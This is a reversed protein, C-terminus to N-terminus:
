RIRVKRSKANVPDVYANGLYRVKVTVPKKSRMKKPLTVTVRGAANVTKTVSRKGVTIRVKAAPSIKSTVRVLAQTRKTKGITRTRTTFTARASAKRVRVASSMVAADHLGARQLKVEVTVRKGVDARQLVYRSSTAGAIARGERKWQYSVRTAAPQQGSVRATLAEGARATGAITAKGLASFEGLVTSTFEYTDFNGAEDRVVVTITHEGPGLDGLVLTGSGPDAGEADGCAVHRVPGSGTKVYCDAGVIPRGSPTDVSLSILGSSEHLVPDSIQPPVTGGTVTFLYKSRATGEGPLWAEVRFSTGRVGDPLLRHLPMSPLAEDGGASATVLAAYSDCLQDQQGTTNNQIWFCIQGDYPEEEEDAVGGLVDVLLEPVYPNAHFLNTDPYAENDAAADYLLPIRKEDIAPVVEVVLRFANRVVEGSANSQVTVIRETVGIENATLRGWYGIEWQGDRSVVSLQGKGGLLQLTQNSQGNGWVFGLGDGPSGSTALPADGAALRAIATTGETEIPIQLHATQNDTWTLKASAAAGAELPEIAFRKPSEVRLSRTLSVGWSNTVTVTVPQSLDTDPHLAHTLQSRISSHDSTNVTACDLGGGCPLRLAASPATEESERKPWVVEVDFEDEPVSAGLQLELEIEDNGNDHLVVTPADIDPTAVNFIVEGYVPDGAGDVRTMKVEARYAGPRDPVFGKRFGTFEIPASVGPAYVKWEYRFTDDDEFLDPRYRGQGDIPNAGFFVSRDPLFVGGVSPTIKAETSEPPLVRLLASSGDALRVNLAGVRAGTEFTGDAASGATVFGGRRVEPTAEDTWWLRSAIRAAQTASTFRTDVYEFSTMPTWAGGNTRSLLWGDRFKLEQTGRGHPLRLQVVDAEQGNVTWRYDTFVGTSGSVDWLAPDARVTGSTDVFAKTYLLGSIRDRAEAQTHVPPNQQFHEFEALNEEFDVSARAIRELDLDLGTDGDSAAMESLTPGVAQELAFQKSALVIMGIALVAIAVPGTALSISAFSAGSAGTVASATLAHPAIAGVLTTSIAASSGVIAGSVAASVAAAGFSVGSATAIWEMRAKEAFAANKTLEDLGSEEQARYAGWALFSEISPVPPGWFLQALRTMCWRTVSSSLRVADSAPVSAPASPPNYTCPSATFAKYEQLARAAARGSSDSLQHVIYTLAKEEQGTLPVGYVYRTMINQLESVVHSVIQPKAYKRIRDDAPLDYTIRLAEEARPVLWGLAAEAEPDAFVDSVGAVPNPNWITLPEQITQGTCASGGVSLGSSGTGAIRLGQGCAAVDVTHNLSQSENIVGGKLVITSLVANRFPNEGSSLLNGDIVVPFDIETTETTTNDDEFVEGGTGQEEDDALAPAAPLGTVLLAAVLVGALARGATRASRLVPRSWFRRAGNSVAALDRSAM